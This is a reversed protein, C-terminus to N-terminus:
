FITVAKGHPGHMKREELNPDSVALMYKTFDYRFVDGSVQEKLGNFGNENTKWTEITGSLQYVPYLFRQVDQPSSAYYGLQLNHFRVTANGKKLKTFKNDHAFYGLAEEQTLLPRHQNVKSSTFHGNQVLKTKRWFYILQSLEKGVFSVVIKAGPGFVPLGNLKFRYHVKVETKYEKSPSQPNDKTSNDVSVGTYGIGIFQVHEGTLGLSKLKADAYVRAEEGSLLDKVLNPDTPSVLRRDFYLFSDSAKYVHLHYRDNRLVLRDKAELQEKGDINFTNNLKNIQEQWYFKTNEIPQLDIKPKLKYDPNTYPESQLGMYPKPDKEPYLNPAQNMFIPHVVQYIPAVKPSSALHPPKEFSLPM